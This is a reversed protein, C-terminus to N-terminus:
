RAERSDNSKRSSVSNFSFALRVHGKPERGKKTERKRDEESSMKGGTWPEYYSGPVLLVGAQLMDLWILRSLRSAPPLSPDDIDEADEALTERGNVAPASDLTPATPAQTPKPPDDAEALMRPWEPHTSLDLELWLFM